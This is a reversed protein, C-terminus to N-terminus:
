QNFWSKQWEKMMEIEKTQAAIIDNALTILESRNSSRLVAEAMVVAGEHHVIMESLFAADFADGTKGELEAMMSSMTHQMGMMNDQMMKGNDMMHMGDPVTTAVRKNSSVAWGVFIGIALFVISFLIIRNKNEM